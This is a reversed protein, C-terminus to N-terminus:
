EPLGAKRLAAFRRDWRDEDESMAWLGQQTAKEISFGPRITLLEKVASRAEDQRGLEAYIMALLIHTVPFGPINIKKAAALAEEYEDKDLHHAAIPLYFWTPHFPDLKMARRVLDIGREDGAFRLHSGLLALVLANDPNLAIARETEALFADRDGLQFHALALVQHARQSTPDLAVARQAANLARGLPDPRPNFEHRHEDLYVQCLYAWADSYSPDSKVARELGDRVKAHEAANTNDRYYAVAKL